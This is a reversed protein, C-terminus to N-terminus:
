SACLHARTKTRASPFVVMRLGSEVKIMVFKEPIPSKKQCLSFVYSIYGYYRVDVV